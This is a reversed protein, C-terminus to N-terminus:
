WLAGWIKKVVEKSLVTFIHSELVLASTADTIVLVAMHSQLCVPLYRTVPPSLPTRKM